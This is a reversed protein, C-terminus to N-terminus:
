ERVRPVSAPDLHLGCEEKETEAWRGAREDLADVVPETCPDCGVSPYGQAELPHAPLAYRQRYAEVDAHTWNLLPHVKIVGSIQPELGRLSHRNETQDRRVGAVWAVMNDLARQMPEVKNVYCCLDPDRQYVDEGYARLFDERSLEPEVVILKLRFREVLEDRFALTEPFHFGTDLFIVPMESCVRSIMHLLPVSQTQFSSTAVIRPAFTRCAWHLMEEAAEPEGPARLICFDLDSM